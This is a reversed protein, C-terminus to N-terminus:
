LDDVGKLKVVSEAEDNPVWDRWEKAWTVVHPFYEDERIKYVSFRRMAAALDPLDEPKTLAALARAGAAHNGKKGKWEAKILDRILTTQKELLERRRPSHSSM